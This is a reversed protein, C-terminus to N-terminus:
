SVQSQCVSYAATRSALCRMPSRLTKWPTWGRCRPCLTAVPLRRRWRERKKRSHGFWGGRLPRVLQSRRGTALKRSLSNRSTLGGAKLTAWHRLTQHLLKHDNRQWYPIPEVGKARWAREASERSNKKGRGHPAFAYASRFSQGLGREAALADVLYSMVPDDVSYGVFLVTFQRFVEVVFRAAWGEALYARGFDASTLVLDTGRPDMDTLLGHLHVLSHWSYAKPVAITPARWVSREDVRETELFRRDFNTTVLRVGLNTRALQLLADHTELSGSSPQGLIRIVSERVAGPVLRRELLGLVKDYQNKALAKKEDEDPVAATLEYVQHVLGEFMPLGSYASVGAGCFLVLTGEELAALVELPIDPGNAVLQLM